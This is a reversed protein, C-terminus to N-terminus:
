HQHMRANIVRAHLKCWIAHKESENLVDPLNTKFSAEDSNWLFRRMMTGSINSTESRPVRRVSVREVIDPVYRRFHETSFKQEVDTDDGVFILIELDKSELTGLEAINGLASWTKRIPSVESLYVTVNGPIHHLIYEQWIDEMDRGLITHEGRRVRDTTSVFVIVSECETAATVILNHHGRQYPKASM